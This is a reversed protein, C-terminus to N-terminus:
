SKNSVMTIVTIPWCCIGIDLTKAKNKQSIETM